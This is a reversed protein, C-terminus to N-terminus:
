RPGRESLKELLDRALRVAVWYIPGVLEGEEMAGRLYVVADLAEQVADVLFDRGNHAQLRTNYKAMGVADRERMVALISDGAGYLQAVDAMVLDWVAEGKVVTPAPQPVNVERAAIAAEPRVPFVPMEAWALPPLLRADGGTLYWQGRRWAAECVLEEAVANKMAVLYDADRLPNGETDIWHWAPHKEARRSLQDSQSAIRACHGKVQQRLSAVEAELEEIRRQPSIYERGQQLCEIFRQCNEITVATELAPRTDGEPLVAYLAADDAHCRDDGREDRHKRIAAALEELTM